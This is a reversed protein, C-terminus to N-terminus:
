RLGLFTHMQPIIRVDDLLGSALAQLRLLLYQDIDIKPGEMTSPQIVLTLERDVGTLMEVAEAFEEEDVEGTVVMKVILVEGGCKKLFSMNEEFRNLEGTCSSLKVDAAVWDFYPALPEVQDPSTSNTELYIRRGEERLPPILEMLFDNQLLPEGGTIALSHHYEQFLSSLLERVQESSLPNGLNLRMDGVNIRCSTAPNRAERTDCYRCDLNCGGLRMFLQRYGVLSSEGQISDFMEVLNGETSM